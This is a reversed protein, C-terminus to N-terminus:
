TKNLADLVTQSTILEPLLVPQADKPGSPYVLYM